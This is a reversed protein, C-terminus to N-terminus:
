MQFYSHTISEINHRLPLYSVVNLKKSESSESPRDYLPSHHGTIPDWSGHLDYAMINLM